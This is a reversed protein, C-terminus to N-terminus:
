LEWSFPLAVEVYFQKLESALGIGCKVLQGNLFLKLNINIPLVTPVNLM